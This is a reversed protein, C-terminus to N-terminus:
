GKKLIVLQENSMRNDAKGTAPNVRYSFLRKAVIKDTLTAEHKWGLATFHEAFIQHIPISQNRVNASGVFFFMRSKITPQIRTLAGLVGWFYRDYMKVLDPEQIRGRYEEYTKSYIQIPEVNAYPLEKKGLDKIAKESFGLWFLDIKSNRIYEQAQLYPPSTILIDHEKSPVQKTIDVNGKVIFEVKQPKLDQYQKLKILLENLNNTIMRYFTAEFDKSLLKKIRKEALPSRSLKQRQNDNYSFYRTTKLLPILLLKKVYENKTTHYYGWTKSLLKLSQEPFWYDINKWDPKFKEDSNKIAIIIEEVNVERDKLIAVEHLYEIMPNLDWMEYDYGYARSVVGVTGYGGFPDFVSMSPKAYTKMVYAIVQPIFKAPYNYLGFTAYTTSPIETILDRFTIEEMITKTM